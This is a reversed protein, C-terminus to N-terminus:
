QCRTESRLPGRMAGPDQVTTTMGYHVTSDGGRWAVTAFPLGQAVTAPSSGGSRGLVETAGAELELDEGLHMTEESRVAAEDFGEDGANPDGM